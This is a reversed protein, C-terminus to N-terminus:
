PRQLEPGLPRSIRRKRGDEQDASRRSLPDAPGIGQDVPQDLAPHLDDPEVVAVGPAGADDVEVGM